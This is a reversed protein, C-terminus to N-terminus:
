YSYNEETFYGEAIIIRQIEDNLSELEYVGQLIIIHNFGDEDTISAAFYFKKENTVSFIGNYGTPFTIAIKFQQNKTQLPQTLNEEHTSKDMVILKHEEITPRTNFAIQELLKSSLEM